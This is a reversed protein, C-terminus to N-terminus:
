PTPSENAGAPGIMELQPIMMAPRKGRHQECTLKFLHCLETESQSKSDHEVLEDHPWEQNRAKENKDLATSQAFRDRM